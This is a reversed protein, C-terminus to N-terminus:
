PILLFPCDSSGLSLSVRVACCRAVVRRSLCFEFRLLTWPFAFCRNFTLHRVSISTADCLKADGFSFCCCVHVHLVCLDCHAPGQLAAMGIMTPQVGVMCERECRVTISQEFSKTRQSNKVLITHGRPLSKTCM